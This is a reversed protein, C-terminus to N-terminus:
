ISARRRSPARSRSCTRRRFAAADLRHRFHPDVHTEGAALGARVCPISGDSLAPPEPDVRRIRRQALEDAAFHVVVPPVRAGYAARAHRLRGTPTGASRVFDDRIRDMDARTMERPTQSESHYPLPSARGPGLQRIGATTWASGASSPRAKAGRTDSSCACSPAPNRTVSISSAGFADRQAENWLGTCGPSIRAEPSTCTMEVFVLGAGGVARSGLHVLHWDTPMGDVAMYQDMPSVVVRNELRMGRLAFPTFMPPPPNRMHIEFGPPLV